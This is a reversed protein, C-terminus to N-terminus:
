EKEQMKECQESLKKMVGPLVAKEEESLMTLLETETTWGHRLAKKMQKSVKLLQWIVGGRAVRKKWKAKGKVTEEKRDLQEGYNRGYKCRVADVPWHRSCGPCVPQGHKTM